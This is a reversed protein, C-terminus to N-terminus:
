VDRTRLRVVAAALIAVVWGVLVAYGAWPSLDVAQTAMQNTLELFEQPTAVRAGASSPLFPRVYELPKWSILNLVSEVVLVFGIVTAITAATNRMLAGLAYGLLAVTTIYLPTGLVIRLMEPDSWDPRMEPVIAGALALSLATGVAATVFAVLAVVAGKAWLVPLRSPVATFTSRVQGTGYEGTVTLAALVVLVLSGFIQGPALVTYVTTASGPADSLDGFSAAGAAMAWALLVLVAVTLGVTWLTSRLSWLKIWESRLVHWASLRATSAPASHQAHSTRPTTATSM